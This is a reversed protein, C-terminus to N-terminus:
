DDLSQVLEADTDLDGGHELLSGAARNAPPVHRPRSDRLAACDINETGAVSIETAAPRRVDRFLSQGDDIGDRQDMPGAPKRDERMRRLASRALPDPCEKTRADL